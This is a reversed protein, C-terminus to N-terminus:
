IDRKKIPKYKIIMEGGEDFVKPNWINFEIGYCEPNNVCFLDINDKDWVHKLIRKLTMQFYRPKGIYMNQDPYYESEPTCIIKTFEDSLSTYQVDDDQEEENWSMLNVVKYKKEEKM